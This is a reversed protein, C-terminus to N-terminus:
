WAVDRVAIYNEESIDQREGKVAPKYGDDTMPIMLPLPQVRVDTGVDGYPVELRLWIASGDAEMQIDAIDFVHDPSCWHTQIDKLIGKMPMSKEMKGLMLLANWLSTRNRSSTEDNGKAVRYWYTDTEPERTITLDIRKKTVVDVRYNWLTMGFRKAKGARVEDMLVDFSFWRQGAPLVELLTTYAKDSRISFNATM